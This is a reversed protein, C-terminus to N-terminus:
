EKADVGQGVAITSQVTIRGYCDESGLLGGAFLPLRPIDKNEPDCVFVAHISKAVKGISNHMFVEFFLVEEAHFAPLVQNLGDIFELLGFRLFQSDCGDSTHFLHLTFNAATALGVDFKCNGDLVWSDQGYQRTSLVAPHEGVIYSFGGIRNTRFSLGVDHKLV